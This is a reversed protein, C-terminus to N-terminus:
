IQAAFVIFLDLICNWIFFIHLYWFFGNKFQNVKNQQMMKDLAFQDGVLSFNQMLIEHITQIQPRQIPNTAITLLISSTLTAFIMGAFVGFAFFIRLPNSQPRYVVSLGLALCVIIQILDLASKKTHEVVMMFYGVAVLLILLGFLSVFATWDEFLYSINQWKPIPKAKQICWTLHDYYYPRSAILHNKIVPSEDLAGIFVDAHSSHPFFWYM